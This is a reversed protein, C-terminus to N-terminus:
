DIFLFLSSLKISILLVRKHLLLFLSLTFLSFHINFTGLEGVVKINLLDIERWITVDGVEM